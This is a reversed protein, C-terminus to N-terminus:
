LGAAKCNELASRIRQLADRYLAAQTGRTAAEIKSWDSRLARLLDLLAKEKDSDM